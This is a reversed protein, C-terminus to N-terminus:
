VPIVEALVAQSQKTSSWPHFNAVSILVPEWNFSMLPSADKFHRGPHQSFAQDIRKKQIVTQFILEISRELFTLDQFDLDYQGVALTM